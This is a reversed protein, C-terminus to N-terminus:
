PPSPTTEAGVSTALRTYSASGLHVSGSAGDQGPAADGNPGGAGGAVNSNAGGSSSLGHFLKLRGGGGGGGGDYAVNTSAGGAGGAAKLSAPAVLTLENSLVLLGGGAGGGGCQNGETGPAGDLQITGSIAIREAMLILAGGGAGGTGVSQSGGAGGSGMEITTSTPSGNAVGPLAAVDAPDYGGVGGAGGHGGGSGGSTTGIQGGGPGAGANAIAGGAYGAGIGDITGDIIIRQAEIRLPAGATITLKHTAQLHFLSYVQTGTMATDASSVFSTAATFVKSESSVSTTATSNGYYLQLTTTTGATLQPVRIWVRSDGSPNWSELWLDLDFTGAKTSTSARLDSGNSRAHSYTFNAPRLRVLVPHNALGSSSLDSTDVTIPVRYRWNVITFLASQGYKGSAPDVVRIRYDTGDLRAPDITWTYSGSPPRTSSLTRVVTTGKRVEIRLPGVPGTSTWQIAHSTGAAWQVGNTPATVTITIPTTTDPSLIDPTLTDPKLTDPKLTDPKLTDGPADKAGDHPGDRPGDSPGDHRGDQVADSLGDRTADGPGGDGGDAGCVETQEPDPLDPCRDILDPVGDGDRDALRGPEIVVSAQVQKGAEVVVKTAGEGVLTDARRARVLLRLEGTASPYLVVRGPLEPLGAAPLRRDELEVGREGYITLRLESIDTLGPASVDLLVTAPNDSSCASTTTALLLGVWLVRSSRGRRRLLALLLLPLLSLMLSGHSLDPALACSGVLQPLKDSTLPPPASKPPGCVDHGPLSSPLCDADRPCPTAPTCSQTCYNRADAPSYACLGSECDAPGNCDEGFGGKPPPPPPPTTQDEVTVTVTAKATNGDGDTATAQLTHTGVGLNVSFDFPAASKSGAGKGDVLLSVSPVAGSDDTAQAKVVVVGPALKSGDAPSTIAIQPPTGDAGDNVDGGAVQRIWDVVVDVRGDYALQGCPMQGRSTVGIQVEKGGMTAFAPGGSDGKCTSGTGVFTFEISTVSAITNTARRKIGADQECVIQNNQVQCYTSGYGVLTIPLGKTPASTAVPLSAVTTPKKSLLIVGFDYPAGNGTWQPHRAASNANITEGSDLVFNYFTGDEICHAATLVTKDGILTGTCLGGSGIQVMGVAPHGTYPAGGTIREGEKGLLELPQEYCGALAFGLACLLVLAGPAGFPRPPTTRAAPSSGRPLLAENYGM